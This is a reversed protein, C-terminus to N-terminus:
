NTAAVKTRPVLEKVLTLVNMDDYRQYSVQDMCAHIISIGRGGDEVGPPRDRNSVVSKWDVSPGYDAVEFVLRAAELKIVVDVVHGPESNYSHEIVNNVAEVVGLEAELLTNQDDFVEACIRKVAVGVLFVNGPESPISLTITAASM